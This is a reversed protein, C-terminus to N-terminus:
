RMLACLVYPQVNVPEEGNNTVQVTWGTAAWRGAPDDETPESVQEIPDPYTSHVVVDKTAKAGGGIAVEAQQQEGSDESACMTTIVETEGAEVSVADSGRGIAEHGSVGDQGDVGDKGDAGDEGDTGDEGDQGKQNILERLQPTFVRQGVSDLRLDGGSLSRNMTEWGGVSDKKLHQKTISYHQIDDGSIKSAAVATGGSLLVVLAGGAIAVTVRSRGLQRMKGGVRSLTERM